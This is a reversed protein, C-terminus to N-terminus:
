ASFGSIYVSRHIKVVNSGDPTFPPSPIVNVRPTSSGAKSGMLSVMTFAVNKNPLRQPRYSNRQTETANPIEFGAVASGLVAKIETRILLDSDLHEDM